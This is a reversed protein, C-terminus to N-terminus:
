GLHSLPLPAGAKLTQIAINSRVERVIPMNLLKGVLFRQYEELDPVVVELFYDAEGSVLHCAVVEPMEVLAQEFRQAEENAHVSIKVGLFVSFGLGIRARALTARYGDIYGDRELRKVRRLCPSPSLGIKDALEVNSLRANAQLERVIRRDVADLEVKSM